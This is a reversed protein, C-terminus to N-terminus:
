HSERPVEAGSRGVLFDLDAGLHAQQVHDVYLRAYGRAPPEPATWEERRRRLEEESLEVHLIRRAVDLQIVDGNRILALPGGVAAEPSAHLVV